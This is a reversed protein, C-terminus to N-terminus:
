PPPAPPETRVGHKAALKKLGRVVSETPRKVGAKGAEMDSVSTQTRGIAGGIQTQTLGKQRLSSITYPINM